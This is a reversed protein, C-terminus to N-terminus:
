SGLSFTSPELGKVRKSALAQLAMRLGASTLTNADDTGAEDAGKEACGSAPEQSNVCGTLHPKRPPSKPNKSETRRLTNGEGERRGDDPVGVPPLCAVGRAADTLGLVTYHALTTKYDAHRMLKQAIQPVVGARALNTGMTTRLSHLDAFRGEEDRDAIGARAYDAKRVADAVPVPFVLDTPKPQHTLRARFTDILQPHLPLVDARKAKGERITVTGADLDLDGWRLRILDGKRLGALLAALYWAERGEERAVAILRACEDDTLPRRVRRRDRSEDLKPVVRLTNSEVRGTKVCWQMFAVADARVLNVTRASRGADAIRTLHTELRDPDIAALTDIRAGKLFLGLRSEKQSVHRPAMGQRTCSRIYDAVVDAATRRREERFREARPDIVGERCLAAESLRKALVREATAKDTTRTSRERRRGTADTWRGIWPGRPDRKFLVGTGRSRRKTRKKTM